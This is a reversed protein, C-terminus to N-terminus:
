NLNNGEYYDVSCALSVFIMFNITVKPAYFLDDFVNMILFCIMSIIYGSYFNGVIGKVKDRMRNVITVMELSLILFVMAGFIGLETFNKIYSNHPALDKAAEIKFEPYKKVYENYANGYNGSGVGLFMNDKVIKNGIQWLKMRGQSEDSSMMLKIRDYTNPVIYVFLLPMVTMVLFKWGYFMILLLIGVAMAMWANRSLTLTLNIMVLLSMIFYILRDKGKVKATSYILPFILLILYAGYANPHDFTVQVRANDLLYNFTMGVKYKSFFIYIGLISILSGSLLNAKILIEYFIKKNIRFRIIFYISLYYSYRIVEKLSGIKNKSYISSLGMILVLAIFLITFKDIIIGKFNMIFDKRLDKNIIIETLYIIGVLVILFGLIWEYRTSPTFPLLVIYLSFLSIIIIDNTKM